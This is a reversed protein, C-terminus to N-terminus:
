VVFKWKWDDTDSNDSRLTHCTVVTSSSLNLEEMDRANIFANLAIIFKVLVLALSYM